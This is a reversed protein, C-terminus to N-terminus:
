RNYREWGGTFIDFIARVNGAAERVEQFGRALLSGVAKAEYGYADMGHARCLYLARAIHSPQTVLVAQEVDYVYVANNCTAYTHDGATDTIIAGSPVGRAILYAQMAHPEDYFDETYGSVIVRDIAGARYLELVANLRAALVSRPVGDPDLGTGFVIAARPKVDLESAVAQPSGLVFERKQHIVVYSGVVIGIPLLISLVLLTGIGIFGRAARSM